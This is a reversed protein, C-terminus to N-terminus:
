RLGMAENVLKITEAAVVRAKDAGKQLTRELEGRDSLAEERRKRMPALAETIIETLEKKNQMCGRVGSIDEDWSRQFGSPDYVKRLQCVVCNEPVGPDSKRLKTPTTFATKVKEAIEDPTSAVREDTFQQRWKACLRSGTQCRRSM